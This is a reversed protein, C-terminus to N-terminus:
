CDNVFTLSLLIPESDQSLASNIRQKCDQRIRDPVPGTGTETGATGDTEDPGPRM